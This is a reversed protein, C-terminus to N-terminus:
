FHIGQMLNALAIQDASPKPKAGEKDGKARDSDPFMRFTTNM